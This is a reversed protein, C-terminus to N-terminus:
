MPGSVGLLGTSQGVSLVCVKLLLVLVVGHTKLLNSKIQVAIDVEVILFKLTRIAMEQPRLCERSQELIKGEKSGTTRRDQGNGGRQGGPGSRRGWLGAERGARGATALM